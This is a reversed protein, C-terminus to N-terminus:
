EMESKAKKRLLLALALILLASGAIYYLTTGSGGTAPLAVGPTNGVTIVTMGDSSPKQTVTILNGNTQNATEIAGTTITGDALITFDIEGTMIIYGPPAQIEDMRYNGPQLNRITADGNVILVGQVEQGNITVTRLDGNVLPQYQDNDGKKLVRFMAGSLSQKTTNDQKVVQLSIEALTNTITWSNGGVQGPAESISVKYLGVDHAAVTRDSVDLDNIKIEKVSYTYLAGTDDYVPLDSFTYSTNNEDLTVTVPTATAGDTVAVPEASGTKRYLGVTVTTNAPWVTDENGVKWEKTVSVDTRPLPNNLNLVAHPNLRGDSNIYNQVAVSPDAPLVYDTQADIKAQSETVRYQIPTTGDAAYRPLNTWSVQWAEVGTKGALPLSVTAGYGNVAATLGTVATWEQSDNTRSELTLTVGANPLSTTVDTTGNMWTKKADIDVVDKDNRYIVQATPISATTDGATVTLEVSSATTATNSGVQSTKLKLPGANTEEVTYVGPTLDPVVVAWSNDTAEGTTITTPVGDVTYGTARGNEFTITVTHRENATATGAKGTVSFVYTGNTLTTTDDRGNITVYKTIKLAGKRTNTFAFTKVGDSTTPGSVSVIWSNSTKTVSSGAEQETYTVASNNTVTYPRVYNFGIEYVTYTIKDGNADYKPLNTWRAIWNESSNRTINGNSCDRVVERKPQGDDTNNITITMWEANLSAVTKDPSLQFTVSRSVDDAGVWTKTADIEVVERNTITATETEGAGITVNSDGGTIAVTGVQQWGPLSAETVTYTTGAPIGTITANGSIVGNTNYVTVPVTINVVGNNETRSTPQPNVQLGSMDGSGTLTVNFYFTKGIADTESGPAIAKVLQLSGKPTNKVTFTKDTSDYTVMDSNTFNVVFKQTSQNISVTFRPNESVKTYGSPTLTEELEYYGERLGTITLQGHDDVPAEAFTKLVTSYNSDYQKLTFKAGSLDGGTLSNVKHINIKTDTPMDNRITFTFRTKGTDPDVTTVYEVPLKKQTGEPIDPDTEDAAVIYYIYDHGNEDYEDFDYTASVGSGNTAKVLWSHSDDHWNTNNLTVTWLKQVFKGNVYEGDPLYKMGEILSQPIVNGNGSDDDDDDDDNNGGSAAGGGSTISKGNIMINMKYADSPEDYDIWLCVPKDSVTISMNDAHSTYYNDRPRWRNQNDGNKIDWDYVRWPADNQKGWHDTFVSFSFTITSNANVYEVIGPPYDSPNSMDQNLSNSIAVYVPVQATSSSATFVTERLTVTNQGGMPVSVARSVRSPNRMYGSVEGVTKTVRYTGGRLGGIEKTLCNGDWTFQSPHYDQSHNPGEVHYTVTSDSYASADIGSFSDVITLKGSPTYSTDEQLKYRGLTATIQVNSPATLPTDNGRTWKKEVELNIKRPEYVNYVYFDLFGNRLRKGDSGYEYGNELHYNGVKDPISKFVEDEKNYDKSVHRTTKDDGDARWVYETKFVTHHYEYIQGSVDEIINPVTNKDETIYFMGESVDYDYIIAIGDQGVTISKSHIPEAGYGTYVDPNQDTCSNRNVLNVTNEDVTKGYYVGFTNTMPNKLAIRNGNVDEVIKTINLAVVNANEDGADGGLIFDMGSNGDAAIGGAGTYGNVYTGNTGHGQWKKFTDQNTGWNPQLPPCENSGPKLKGESDYGNWDWYNFSASLNIDVTVSLPNGEMDYLQGFDEHRFMFKVPKTTSVTYYVKNALRAARTENTNRDDRSVPDLDAVKFNGEIRVQDHSIPTEQNASYGTITFLDDRYHPVNNADLTYAKITGRKIDEKTVDVDQILEIDESGSVTYTMWEGTLADRYKYTGHALPLTLRASGVIGIDIHNVMHNMEALIGSDLYEMDGANVLKAFYVEYRDNLSAAGCLQSNNIKFFNLNWGRLQSNGDFDHDGDNDPQQDVFVEGTRNIFSIGNSNYPDLHAWYTNGPNSPDKYDCYVQHYTEDYVWLYMKDPTPFSITNAWLGINADSLSRDPNVIYYTNNRWPKIILYYSEGNKPQTVKELTVYSGSTVNTLDVFWFDKSDSVNNTNSIRLTGDSAETVSLYNGNSSIKFPNNGQVGFATESIAASRDSVTKEAYKIHQGVVTVFVQRNPDQALEEDTDVNSNDDQYRGHEQALGTASQPDIYRRYFDSARQDSTYGVAVSNHYLHSGDWTWTMPTTFKGAVINGSDDLQVSEAKELRGDNLVVYYEDNYKTVLMYSDVDKTVPNVPDLNMRVAQDSTDCGAFSDCNFHNLYFKAGNLTTYFAYSGSVTEATFVQANGADVLDIHATPVYRSYYKNEHERVMQIYKKVGSDVTYIKYQGATGASEFYWIGADSKDTTHDLRRPKSGNNGQQNSGNDIQPLTVAMAYHKKGNDNGGLSHSIYFAKGALDGVGTPTNNTASTVVGYVSFSEAEFRIDGDEGSQSDMVVPGNVEDFHVVKLEDEPADALGISVSVPAAPEIKHAAEEGEYKGWIEIDFFRAYDVQVNESGTQGATDSEAAADEGDDQEADNPEAADGAGTAQKAGGLYALYDITDKEIETVKLEADLPIEAEPGFTLTIRYATGDAAIVRTAIQADTVDVAFSDGNDMVVTLTENSTFPKLSFLAWDPAALERADIAEREEGTLAASYESEVGLAARLAGVATNEEVKAVTVLEPASFTVDTVAAMFGDLENAETGADDSVIGLAPLLARLSACDGGPIGYDFTEGNATYHFDVTYVVGWVSFSAADFVVAEDTERATVVDTNEGGFHMACVAPDGVDQKFQEEAECVAEAGEDLAINVQVPADPQIENGDADLIAIDFFYAETIRKGSDLAESAQALYAESTVESVRLTADAPINAEKGYGVSINWADGRADIYRTDITKAVVVAYVSFSDAEFSQTEVGEGEAPADSQANAPMEMAVGTAGNQAEGQSDVVEAAGADDVHVVVAEEEDEVEPVSMMVSIAVRPEIEVGDHWFSIDVAHVRTVEVFDESVTDEINSLTQADEVDRVVMTTGEPFAGEPADVVVSMGSATQEFHQAPYAIEAEEPTQAEDEPLRCNALTLAVGNVTITAADFSVLPMVSYDDDELAVAFVAEDYEVVWDSAPLEPAPQDDAPIDEGEPESEAEASAPAAATVNAQAMLGRLSLPYDQVGSLDIYAAPASEDGIAEGEPSAPADADSSTGEDETGDDTTEDAADGDTPQTEDPNTEDAADGDAPVEDTVDSQETGGEGVPSPKQTDGSETEDATDGDAPTTGLAEGEPSAPEGDPSVSSTTEKEGEDSDSTEESPVEDTVDSQATGGEGVPSPKQTDGSETEDTTDGDAPTEDPNTEDTTDGDVTEDGFAKGEPSPPADAGSSTGEDEIGDDTMDDATQEDISVEDTVDGQATGGEGSVSGETAPSPQTDDSETEDAPQEPLATLDLNQGDDQADPSPVEDTVDSQATGGEGVPSPKQADGSETEDTSDGDSSPQKPIDTVDIGQADDAPQEPIDTVDIGQGDGQADDAPQEPITTLDIGQEAGQEKEQAKDQGDEIDEVGPVDEGAMGTGQESKAEKEESQADGADLAVQVDGTVLPQENGVETEKETEFTVEVPARGDTLMVTAVGNNMVLALEVESFDKLARIIYDGDQKQSEILGGHTGDNDVVGVETIAPIDIQLGTNEIIESLRAQEGLRYEPQAPAAADIGQSLDNSVPEPLTDLGQDLNLHITDDLDLVDNTEVIDPNELELGDVNVPAEQYCADTHQHEVKGCTLNGDGDYCKQTHTHKKLGCMPKRSLTNATLKLSNMTFLMVLVCLISLARKLWTNRRNKQAIDKIRNNM